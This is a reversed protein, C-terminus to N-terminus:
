RNAIWSISGLRADFSDALEVLGTRWYPERSDVRYQAPDSGIHLIVRYSSADSVVPTLFQVTDGDIIETRVSPPNKEFITKYNSLIYDWPIDISEKRFERYTSFRQVTTATGRKNFLFGNQESGRWCYGCFKLYLVATDSHKLKALLRKGKKEISINPRLYRQSGIGCSALIITLTFLM